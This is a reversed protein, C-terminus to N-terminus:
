AEGKAAEVWVAQAEDAVACLRRIEHIAPAPIFFPRTRGERTARDQEDLALRVQHYAVHRAEREAADWTQHLEGLNRGDPLVDAYAAELGAQAEDWFADTAAALEDLAARIDVMAAAERQLEVYKAAAHALRTTPSPERMTITAVASM